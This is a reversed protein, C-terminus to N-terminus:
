AQVNVERRLRAVIQDRDAVPDGFIVLVRRLPHDAPDHLGRHHEPLERHEPARPLHRPRALERHDPQRIQNNIRNRRFRLDIHQGHQM